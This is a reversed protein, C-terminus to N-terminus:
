ERANQTSLRSVLRTMSVQSTVMLLVWWANRKDKLTCTVVFNALLDKLVLLIISSMIITIITFSWGHM